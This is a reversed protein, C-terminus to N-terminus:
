LAVVATRWLSGFLLTKDLIKEFLPTLDKPKPDASASLGFTTFLRPEKSAEEINKGSTILDYAVVGLGGAVLMGLLGFFGGGMLAFFGIVFATVAIAKGGLAVLEGEVGMQKRAQASNESELMSAIFNHAQQGCNSLLRSITGSM